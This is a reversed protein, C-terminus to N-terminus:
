GGEIFFSSRSLRAHQATDWTIYRISEGSPLVVRQFRTDAGAQPLVTDDFLILTHVNDPLRAPDDGLQYGLATDQYNALYFDPHRFDFGGALVATMGPAFHARIYSVREGLSRDRQAITQRSPTILPLRQSGFPASPSLLFFSANAVVLTATLAGMAPQWRAVAALRQGLRVSALASLVIVAPLFTFIHGHQRLHVFIYFGFAPMVWLALVWARRDVLWARASRALAVAGWALPITALLLGYGLYIAMRAVNLGLQDPSFLSSEDAIGGSEAHLAALYGVPGGSLAIM